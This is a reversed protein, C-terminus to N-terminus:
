PRTELREVTEITAERLRNVQAVLPDIQWGTLRRQLRKLLAAGPRASTPPPPPLPSLRRLPQSPAERAVATLRPSRERSARARVEAM